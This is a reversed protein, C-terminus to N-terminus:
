GSTGWTLDDSSYTAAPRWRSSSNADFVVALSPTSQSSLASSPTMSSSSASSPTM